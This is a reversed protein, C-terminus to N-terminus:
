PHSVTLTYTVVTAVSSVNGVLLCYDGKFIQSDIALVNLTAFPAQNVLGGACATGSAGGQFLNIGLAVNNQPSLATIKVTVEGTGSATFTKPTDIAGQAITGSFTETKNQSPDVVGGCGITLAGAISLALVLSFRARM